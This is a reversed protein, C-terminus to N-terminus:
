SGGGMASHVHWACGDISEGCSVANVSRTMAEECTTLLLVIGHLSGTQTCGCVFGGNGEPVHDAVDRCRSKRAVTAHFSM